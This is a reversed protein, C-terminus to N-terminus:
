LAAMIIDAAKEAIAYVTSMPTAGLQLPIVSADVVRLNKTGYVRLSPDVVGGIERPAMAATGIPHFVTAINSKIYTRLQEDTEADAPPVLSGSIQCALPGTKTIKQIFRVVHTLAHLDYDRSLYKPDIAPSALPDSSAIHVSGRSVPHLHAGPLWATMQGDPLPLGAAGPLNAFMVEVEAVTSDPSALWQRQIQFQVRELPTLTQSALYSDLLNLLAAHQECSTAAKLTTFLFPGGTVTSQADKGPEPKADSTVPIVNLASQADSTLGFNMNVMLHDQYNEGVPLDVRPIIGYKKLISEKGIGSLELLQPTKYAGASLIVEKNANVVYKVGDVDIEVGTAVLEETNNSFLIKTAYAGVLVSINPRETARDLYTVGSHQRTGTAIDVARQCNILGTLDGGNPNANVKFSLEALSKIFPNILSSYWTNYSTKVPGELGEYATVTATGPLIKNDQPTHSQSKKFYPVLDDFSWGPNGMTVLADYEPKSARTWMMANMASCGGILKGRPVSMKQGAAATQPLTELGWNYAPGYATTLWGGASKVFPDASLDQGAELVGIYLEPTESLRSALALGATGGGVVLIDYSKKAFLYADSTVNSPM